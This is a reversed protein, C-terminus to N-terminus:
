DADAWMLVIRLVARLLLALGACAGIGLVTAVTIFQTLVDRIQAGRAKAGGSLTVIRGAVVCGVFMGAGTLAGLALEYNGAFSTSHTTRLNSQLNSQLSTWLGPMGAGPLPWWPPWDVGPQRVSCQGRSCQGGTKVAAISASLDPAGNGLALLTVGGLRPPLGLDQSIQRNPKSAALCSAVTHCLVAPGCSGSCRSCCVTWYSADLLVTCPLNAACMAVQRM